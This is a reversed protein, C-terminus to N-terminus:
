RKRGKLSQNINYLQDNMLKQQEASMELQRVVKKNFEVQEESIRELFKVRVGLDDALAKTKDVGDVWKGTLFVLASGFIGLVWKAFTSMPVKLPGAGIEIEGESM